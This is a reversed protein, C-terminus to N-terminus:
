FLEVYTVVKGKVPAFDSEEGEGYILETRELRRPFASREGKVLRFERGVPGDTPAPTNSYWYHEELEEYLLRFGKESVSWLEYHRENGRPYFDACRGGNVHSEIVFVGKAPGEAFSYEFYDSHGGLCCRDGANFARRILVDDVRRWKGDTGARYVCLLTMDTGSDFCTFSASVIAERATDGFLNRYNVKPQIYDKGTLFSGSLYDRGGFTFFSFDDFGGAVHLCLDFLLDADDEANSLRRYLQASTPRPISDLRLTFFHEKKGASDSWTGAFTSADTWSGHFRGTQRAMQLPSTYYQLSDYGGVTFENMRWQGSSDLKGELFICSRRSEYYYMGHLTDSKQELLLRVPFTGVHGKLLYLQHNETQAFLRSASLFFLLCAAFRPM